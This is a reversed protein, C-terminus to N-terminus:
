GFVYRFGSRAPTKRVLEMILLPIGLGILTLLSVYLLPHGVIQPAFRFIMVSVTYTAPINVLYVGLSKGGLTMIRDSFPLKVNEFALLCLSVTSAYIIRAFGPNNPGLWEQGTLRDLFEYEVMTLLASTVVVLLLLWKVRALWEKFPLVHLGAVMGMTFYFIRSPALWLPTLQIIAEVFSSELGIVRVFRLSEWILQVLAMSILVLKWNKKALPVLLLSLLYYQVLLVIYYYPEFIAFISAPPQRLLLFRITTWIIFPILIMKIRPTVMAWTLKGVKGRAMFAIFFGSVFFFAPIAFADLQRTVLIIYYPWTGLQDYNPVSVPRYLHTWQFLAQLGYATAHHIPVLLVALGNLLLLRKTM